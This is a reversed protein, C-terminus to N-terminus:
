GIQSALFQAVEHPDQNRRYVERQRQSGTGNALIDNLYKMEDACGLKEAFPQCREILRKVVQRAPVALMNDPDVFNADLGHRAAQWKNQKAIMPHIDYQYAGRDILDSIAAVLSQTLAVMGLLHKMNLPMDMVRIEVTGFEHHPRVDWWIERISNIFGTSVLHDVLWVYESWNRLTEPMGATPLSEMIKSRYSALGTDRGCWMPSNCSLAFLTPLHRLLRDCLQIAKDGGDVGVHVHLGFVVLRRAVDQMVDRLWEYRKGHSIKQDHWTSFPHTGSWLLQCNDEACAENAWKIKAELDQRVEDVTNCVGTNLECYSQMFEPKIQDAWRPPVKGLLREVSNSLALTERDVIQLEIEVGLTSTKNGNFLYPMAKLTASFLVTRHVFPFARGFGRFLWGSAKLYEAFGATLVASIM